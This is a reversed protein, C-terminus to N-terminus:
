DFTKPDVQFDDLAAFSDSSQFDAVRFKPNAFGLVAAEVRTASSSIFCDASNETTSYLKTESRANEHPIPVLLM